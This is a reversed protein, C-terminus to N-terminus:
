AARAAMQKLMAAHNLDLVAAYRSALRANRHIVLENDQKTEGSASWNTSGSLVYLGDVVCVKLHSIAGKASTGVAVTTGASQAWEAVLAKEHVGGAQSRDLSMQFCFGPEAAKAHLIQDLRDDDFGYMNVKISDRAAGILRELVLPLCTDRPSFFSRVDTPWGSFDSLTDLWAWDFVTVGM